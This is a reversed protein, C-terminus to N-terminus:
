QIIIYTELVVESKREKEKWEVKVVVDALNTGSAMRSVEITVNYHRTEGTVPDTIEEEETKPEGLDLLSMAMEPDGKIKEIYRAGLATAQSTLKGHKIGAFVYELFMFLSVVVAAALGMALIIELLSFAKTYRRRMYR